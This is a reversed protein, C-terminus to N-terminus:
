PAGRDGRFFRTAASASWNDRDEGWASGGDWSWETLCNVTFLNPNPHLAAAAPPARRAAADPPAGPDEPPLVAAPRRLAASVRPATVRATHRAATHSIFPPQRRGRPRARASVAHPSPL